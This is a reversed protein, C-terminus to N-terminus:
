PLSGSLMRRTKKVSEGISQKLNRIAQIISELNNYLDLLINEDLGQAKWNAVWWDKFQDEPTNKFPAYGWSHRKTKWGIAQLVANQYQRIMVKSTVTKPLRNAVWDEIFRRQTQILDYQSTRDSKHYDVMEEPKNYLAYSWASLSQRNIIGKVKNKVMDLFIPNLKSNKQYFTSTKPLLVGFGLKSVGLIFGFMAHDLTSIKVDVVRGDPTIYPITALAPPPPPKGIRLLIYLSITDSLSLTYPFGKFFTENLLFSDVFQKPIEKSVTERLTVSDTFWLSPAGIYFWLAVLQRASIVATESNYNNSFRGKITHSGSPLKMAYATAESNAYSIDYPSSRSLAVDSGDINIGYCEGYYSSDVGNRKTGMAIVLLERNDTITRNIISDPDDVLTDSTTSEQTPSSIVDLLTSSDLFLVAFQRRDVTITNGASNSAVRGGVTITGGFVNLAHVTFVSDPYNNWCQSQESQAYDVGNISISIKKGYYTETSGYFNTVNYMALMVYSNSINFTAQARPDNVFSDSDTSFSGLTDMYYYFNGDFIYVILIRNSIVTTGGGDISSFRGKITHDGADLEGVWFCLNRTPYGYDYVSSYSVAVDSGDINIANGMLFYNATNVDNTAQYIILVVKKEDLSFSITAYPDDVFDASDTSAVETSSVVYKNNFKLPVITFSSRTYSFSDTLSFGDSLNLFFPHKLTVTSFRINYPSSSGARWLIGETGNEYKEAQINTPSTEGSAITTSPSWAHSSYDMSKYIINSSSVYFVYLVDSGALLSPSTCTKSDVTIASSWSTTYYYYSLVGGSDSPPAVFHVQGNASVMSLNSDYAGSTKSGFTSDSSWNSGDYTKYSFSSSGWKATVIIIGDPYQPLDSIVIGARYNSDSLTTSDLIQTWASNGDTNYYVHVHYGISTTYYAILGLYFRNTTKAWSFLWYGGAQRVTIASGWTITGSSPTGRRTYATSSTSSSTSYSGTAYAVYVYTGDTFVSFGDSRSITWLANESSWNVGDPSSKYCLYGTSSNFYFAYFYGGVKVITRGITPPLDGTAITTPM